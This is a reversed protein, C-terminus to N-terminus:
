GRSLNHVNRINRGHAIGVIAIWAIKRRAFRLDAPEHAGAAPAKLAARNGAPNTRPQGTAKDTPDARGQNRAQKAAREALPWFVNAMAARTKAAEPNREPKPREHRHKSVKMHQDLTCRLPNDAPDKKPKSTAKSPLTRRSSGNEQDVQNFHSRNTV